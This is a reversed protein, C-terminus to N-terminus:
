NSGPPSLRPRLLTFNKIKLRKMLGKTFAIESKQKKKESNEIRQEKDHFDKVVSADVTKVWIARHSRHDDDLTLADKGHAPRVQQIGERLGRAFVHTPADDQGAQSIRMDMKLFVGEAQLFEVELVKGLLFGQATDFFAGGLSEGSGPNEAV